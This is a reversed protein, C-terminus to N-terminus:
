HGTTQVSAFRQDGAAFKAEATVVADHICPGMQYYRDETSGQLTASCVTAAARVIKAHATAADLGAVNVKLSTAAAAPLALAGLATALLAGRLVASFAGSKAPSTNALSM